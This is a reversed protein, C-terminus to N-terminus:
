KAAASRFCWFVPFSAHDHSSTWPVGLRAEEGIKQINVSDQERKHRSERSVCHMRVRDRRGPGGTVELGSVIRKKMKKVKEKIKGEVCVMVNPTLQDFMNAQKRSRDIRRCKGFISLAVLNLYRWTLYMCCFTGQHMGPCKMKALAIKSSKVCDYIIAQLISYLGCKGPVGLTYLLTSISSHWDM